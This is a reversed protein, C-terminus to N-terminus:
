KRLAKQSDHVAPVRLDAYEFKPLHANLYDRVVAPDVHKHSFIPQWFKQLGELIGQPTSTVSPTPVTPREKPIRLGALVLRRRFPNWAQARRTLQMAARRSGAQDM